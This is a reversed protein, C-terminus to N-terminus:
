ESYYIKGKSKIRNPIIAVIKPFTELKRQAVDTFIQLTPFIEINIYVSINNVIINSIM